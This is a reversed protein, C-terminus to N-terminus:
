KVFLHDKISPFISNVFQKYTVSQRRSSRMRGFDEQKDRAGGGSYFNRLWVGFEWAEQDTLYGKRAHSYSRGNLVNVIRRRANQKKAFFLYLFDLYENFDLDGDHDSDLLDLAREIDTESVNNMVSGRERVQDIIYNKFVYKNVYDDRQDMRDFCSKIFDFQEDGLEYDNQYKRKVLSYFSQNSNSAEISVNRQLDPREFRAPSSTVPKFMSAERRVLNPLSDELSSSRSAVSENEIGAGKYIEDNDMSADMEIDDLSLDSMEVSGLRKNTVSSTTSEEEDEDPVFMRVQKKAKKKSGGGLTKDSTQDLAATPRELESM